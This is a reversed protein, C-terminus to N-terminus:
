DKFIPSYINERRQIVPAIAIVCSDLNYPFEVISYTMYHYLTGTSPQYACPREQIVATHDNIGGLSAAVRDAVRLTQILFRAPVGKAYYLASSYFFIDKNKKEENKFEKDFINKVCLTAFMHCINAAFDFNSLPHYDILTQLKIINFQAKIFGVWEISFLKVMNYILKRQDETLTLQTSFPVFNNKIKIMNVEKIIIIGDSTLSVKFKRDNTPNLNIPQYNIPIIGKYLDFRKHDSNMFGNIMDYLDHRFTFLTIPERGSNQNAITTFEIVKGNEYIRSM